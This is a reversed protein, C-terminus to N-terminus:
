PGDGDSYVAARPPTFSGEKSRRGQQVRQQLFPEQEQPAV